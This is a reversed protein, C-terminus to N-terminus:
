LIQDTLKPCRLSTLTVDIVQERDQLLGEEAAKADQKTDDPIGPCLLV